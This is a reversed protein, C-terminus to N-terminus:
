PLRVLGAFSWVARYLARLFVERGDEMRAKTRLVHQVVGVRPTTVDNFPRSGYADDDWAVLDGPRFKRRLRNMRVRSHPRERWQPSPAGYTQAFKVHKSLQRGVLVRKRGEGDARDADVDGTSNGSSSM